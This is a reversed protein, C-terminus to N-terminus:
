FDDYLLQFVLKIVYQQICRCSDFAAKYMRNGTHASCNDYRCKIHRCQLICVTDDTNQHLLSHLMNGKDDVAHVYMMHIPTDANRQLLRLLPQGDIKEAVYEIILIHHAGVIM